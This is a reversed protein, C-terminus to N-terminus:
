QVRVSIQASTSNKGDNATVTLTYTTGSQAPRNASIVLTSTGCTGTCNSAAVSTPSLSANTRPPAGSVTLNVTGTYGNAGTVTIVDNVSGGRPVTVSSSAASISFTGNQPAATPTASAENSNGSPGASNVAQVVYFYQTGATVNLDTFSNSSSTAYQTEGGSVTGRLINYSTAGASAIWGLAVQGQGGTATLGTPAAPPQPPATPTASAQNSNGSTGASNVAQVVYFYTVGANVATDLYGTTSSTGIQTYPGGNTTGRLVNYSTAGTSATWSLSVQNQGATATLTPAAPPQPTGSTCTPFSFSFIKTAWNFSGSAPEYETTYWFTCDDVPDVRMASYDGWRNLGGNQFFTSSLLSNEAQMTSLPDSVQRGTYRISPDLGNGSISYGLAIDGVKDMAISGMWRYAADPAFTSQQNVLPTGGPNQIEYWRVGVSTGATVSHNVVLSEHDGFNRYALRYMLRDGLSDLQQNTGNQPICAGGGCAESFAAVAINTPGNLTSCSPCTWNVAFKWLQLVNSGFALFYNPSGPPPATHGDVDSPLLGGYATSLHFCVQIAAAGTRMSAGDYACVGGGAFFNGNFLNFSIYYADPWVGLKPYDPFLTYGFSYRNYAGTPDGTQSVAVCQLYPVSNGNAGSVAFQTLIWRDNAIDYQVIPDGDNDSQCLGGFGSFLTNGTIPGAVINGAKDWVAYSENVWQVIHNPGVAMNTDPPAANPAFGPFGVGVGQFAAGTTTSVALGQSNQIAADTGNSVPHDKFRKPAREWRFAAREAHPMSRLPPSVDHHEDYSVIPASVNQSWSTLSLFLVLCLFIWSIRRVAM